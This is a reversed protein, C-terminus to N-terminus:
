ASEGWLYRGPSLYSFSKMLRTIMLDRGWLFLGSSEVSHRPSEAPLKLSLSERNGLKGVASFINEHHFDKQGSEKVLCCAIAKKTSESVAMHWLRDDKMLQEAKEM